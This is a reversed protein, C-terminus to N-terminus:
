LKDDRLVLFLFFFVFGCPVLNGNRGMREPPCSAQSRGSWQQPWAHGRDHRPRSLCM